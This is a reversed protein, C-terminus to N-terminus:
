NLSDTGIKPVGKARNEAEPAGLADTEGAFNLLGIYSDGAGSRADAPLHRAILDVRIESDLNGSM